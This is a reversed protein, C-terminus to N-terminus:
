HGEIGFARQTIERQSGGPAQATEAAPVQVPLVAAKQVQVIKTSQESHHVQSHQNPLQHTLGGRQEIHHVDQDLRQWM